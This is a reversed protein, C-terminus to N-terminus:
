RDRTLFDRVIRNFTAAQDWNTVHGSEPVVVLRAGPIGRALAEKAGLPISTDDEGAVVLTPCRIEGLRRRVDFCVLAAIAALYARRGNQALRAAAADRLEGQDPKPFLDRAVYSGLASMPALLLLGLRTLMRAAARPGAPRLRAFTNVLVLSRVRAPARLALTLAVCGGLSLGIVHAARVGLADLLAEVDGAMTEMTPFARSPSSGGHGALDVTVLAWSTEFAAIQPTWDASSSGLGHLLVLAEDRPPGHVEYALVGGDVEILPM